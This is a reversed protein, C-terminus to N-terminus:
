RTQTFKRRLSNFHSSQGGVFIILKTIILQMNSISCTIKFYNEISASPNILVFEFQELRPLKFKNFWKYIKLM